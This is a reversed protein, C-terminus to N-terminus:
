WSQTGQIQFQLLPFHLPERHSREYTLADYGDYSFQSSTSGNAKRPYRAETCMEVPAVGRRGELIYCSPRAEQPPRLGSLLLEASTWAQVFKFHM